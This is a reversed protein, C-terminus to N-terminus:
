QKPNEPKKTQLKDLQLKLKNLKITLSTLAASHQPGNKCPNEKDANVKAQAEDVNAQLAALANPSSPKQSDENDKSEKEAKTVTQTLKILGATITGARYYTEIDSFAMPLPYKDIPCKMNAYIIAAQQHRGIRMAAQINQILEARLIKANYADDLGNLGTAIGNLLQATHQVPVLTATGTLALNAAKAAFDAGQGEQTLATEYQTYRVDIAYMRATIINNRIDEPKQATTPLRSMQAQMADALNKLETDPAYLREPPKFSGVCGALLPLALM